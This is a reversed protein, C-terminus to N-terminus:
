FSIFIEQLSIATEKLSFGKEQLSIFSEKCSIAPEQLAILLEQLSILREPLSVPASQQVFPNAPVDAVWAHKSKCLIWWDMASPKVSITLHTLM